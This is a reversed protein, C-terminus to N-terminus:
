AFIGHDIQGLIEDVALAGLETKLLQLPTKQGHRPLAKRLWHHAIKVDGFIRDAQTSIRALRLAKDTEEPSLNENAARRRVLTRKPIVLEDLEDANFRSNWLSLEAANISFEMGLSMHIEARNLIQELNLVGYTQFSTAAEQLSGYTENVPEAQFEINM